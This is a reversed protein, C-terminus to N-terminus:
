CDLRASGGDSPQGDCGKPASDSEINPPASARSRTRVGVQAIGFSTTGKLGSCLFLAGVIVFAAFNKVLKEVIRTLRSLEVPGCVAFWADPDSDRAEIWWEGAPRAISITKWRLGPAEEPLVPVEGAASKVVLRLRDSSASLDGAVQFRLIPLTSAPQVSSKWSSATSRAPWSNFVLSSSAARLTSPLATTVPLRDSLVSASKRVSPPLVNRIGPSSLREILVAPAPYPLRPWSLGEFVRRDLTDVYERVRKQQETRNVAHAPIPSELQTRTVDFLGFTVVCLWVAGSWMRIRGTLQTAIFFWGLAVNVSLLDFYRSSLVAGGGRAYALAACQLVSWALLGFLVIESHAVARRRICRILFVAAPAFVIPVVVPGPWALAHSFSVVFEAIGHAQLVAHDPVAAKMAWGAVCLALAILGTTIQQATLARKHAWQVALTVLLAAASLFGSAMTAVALLGCLQGISWRISFRDNELSFVLHGFSFLLLFYFQIQFGYLTNEWSFPLAFLLLLVGGFVTLWGGALWRRAILLLVLACLTHIAANSTTEVLANWQGNVVFLGLVYLKTTIIRHENHSSFINSATLRGELWPRIVSEGEGDWQDLLPLDSGAREILWLKAGFILLALGVFQLVHRLRNM